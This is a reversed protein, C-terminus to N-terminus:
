LPVIITLQFQSDCLLSVLIRLDNRVGEFCVSMERGKRERMEGKKKKLATRSADPPNNCMYVIYLGVIPFPTVHKYFHSGIDDHRRM